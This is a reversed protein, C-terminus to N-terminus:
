TKGNVLFKQSWHAIDGYQQDLKIWCDELTLENEVRQKDWTKTFCKTKLALM